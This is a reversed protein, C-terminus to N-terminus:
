AAAKHAPAAARAPVAPLPMVVPEPRAVPTVEDRAMLGDVAQPIRGREIGIDSLSWDPLRQMAAIAAQRQWGWRLAALFGFRPAIRPAFRSQAAKAKEKVVRAVLEDIENREIGIDALLHADLQMLARATRRRRIARMVPQVLVDLLARLSTSPRVATAPTSHSDRAADNRALCQGLAGGATALEPIWLTRSSQRRLAQNLDTLRSM